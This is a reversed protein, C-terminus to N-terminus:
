ATEKSNQPCWTVVLALHINATASIPDYLWRHQPGLPCAPSNAPAVASLDQLAAPSASSTSAPMPAKAARASQQAEQLLMGRVPARCEDM